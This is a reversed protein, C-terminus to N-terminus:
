QSAYKALLGQQRRKSDFSQCLRSGRPVLEFSAPAPRDQQCGVEWEPGLAEEMMQDSHSSHLPPQHRSSIMRSMLLGLFVM